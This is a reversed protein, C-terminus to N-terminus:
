FRSKFKYLLDIFHNILKVFISKIKNKLYNKRYEKKRKIELLREKELLKLNEYYDSDYVYNTIILKQVLFSNHRTKVGVECYHYYFSDVKIFYFNSNTLNYYVFVVEM